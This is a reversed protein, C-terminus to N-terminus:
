LRKLAAIIPELKANIAKGVESAVIFATFAALATVLIYPTTALAVIPKLLARGTRQFGDRRQTPSDTQLQSATDDDSPLAPENGANPLNTRGIEVDIERSEASAIRRMAGASSSGIDNVALM